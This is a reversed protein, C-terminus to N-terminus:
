QQCMGMVKLGPSLVTLLLGGDQGLDYLRLCVKIWGYSNASACPIFAMQSSLSDLIMEM